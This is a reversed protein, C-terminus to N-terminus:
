QIKLTTLSADPISALDTGNALLDLLSNFNKIVRGQGVGRWTYAKTANDVWGPWYYVASTDHASPFSPHFSIDAVIETERDGSGDGKLPFMHRIVNKDEDSPAHSTAIMWQIDGLVFTYNPAGTNGTNAGFALELDQLRSSGETIDWLRLFRTERRSGRPDVGPTTTFNNYLQNWGSRKWISIIWDEFLYLAVLMSSPNHLIEGFEVGNDPGYFGRTNFGYVVRNDALTVTELRVRARNATGTTLEYLGTEMAVNNHRGKKTLYYESPADAVTPNNLNAYTDAVHHGVYGHLKAIEGELDSKATELAQRAQQDVGAVPYEVFHRAADGHTYLSVGSASQSDYSSLIQMAWEDGDDLTHLVSNSDHALFVLYVLNDGAVFENRTYDLTSRTTVDGSTIQAIVTDGTAVSSGKFREYLRSELRLAVTSENDGGATLAGVAFGINGHFAGRAGYITDSLSTGIYDIDGDSWTALRGTFTDSNDATGAQYLANNAVVIADNPVADIDLTPQYRVANPATRPENMNAFPTWAVRGHGLVDTDSGDEFVRLTFNDGVLDADWLLTASTFRASFVSYRVGTINNQETRRYALRYVHSDTGTALSARVHDGSEPAGGLADSVESEVVYLLVTHSNTNVPANHSTAVFAEVAVNPNHTFGGLPPLDTVTGHNAGIIYRDGTDNPDGTQDWVKVSGTVQGTGPGLTRTYFQEDVVVVQGVNFDDADPLSDFEQVARLAVSASGLISAAIDDDLAALDVLNDAITGRLQGLYSSTGRAAASSTLQLKIGSLLSIAGLTDTYYDWAANSAVMSLFNVPIVTFSDSGDGAVLRAQAVNTGSPLRVTVFFDGRSTYSSAFSNSALALVQTENLQSSSLHVGGQSVASADAWGTPAPGSRLDHTANQLLSIQKDVLGEINIQVDEANVTARQLQYSAVKPSFFKLSNLTNTNRNDGKRVYSLIEIQYSIQSPLAYDAADITVTNGDADTYSGVPLASFSMFDTLSVTHETGAPTDVRIERHHVLEKAFNPGFKHLTNVRVGTTSSENMELTLSGSWLTFFGLAPSLPGAVEHDVLLDFTAGTGSSSIATATALDTATLTPLSQFFFPSVEGVGPPADVCNFRNGAGSQLRKGVACDSVLASRDVGTGVASPLIRYPIRQEPVQGWSYTACLLLVGAVMLAKKM